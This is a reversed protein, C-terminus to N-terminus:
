QEPNLYSPQKNNSIIGSLMSYHRASIPSKLLQESCETTFNCRFKKLKNNLMNRTLKQMLALVTHKIVLNWIGKYRVM